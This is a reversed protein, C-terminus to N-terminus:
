KKKKREALPNPSVPSPQELNSSPMQSTTVSQSGSDNKQKEKEYSDTTPEEVATKMDDEFIDMHLLENTILYESFADKDRQDSLVDFADKIQKKIKNFTKESMDRGTTDLGDDPEPEPKLDKEPKPENKKAFPDIFRPDAKATQRAQSLDAEEEQEQLGVDVSVKEEPTEVTRILDKTKKVLHARFSKRQEESTTLQKYSNEITPVIKKLLDRLVNIGTIPHPPEEEKEQLLKRIVLRLQKEEQLIKEEREKMKRKLGERIIKRLKIEEIFEKRNIMFQEEQMILIKIKEKRPPEDDRKSIGYRSGLGLGTNNYGGAGAGEEVEENKESGLPAGFGVVGGAGSM